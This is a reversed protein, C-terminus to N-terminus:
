GEMQDVMDSKEQKASKLSKPKRPVPPKRASGSKRRGGYTGDKSDDKAADDVESLDESDGQGIFLSDEEKVKEAKKEKKVVEAGDGKKQLELGEGMTKELFGMAIEDDTMYPNPGEGIYRVPLGSNFLKKIRESSMQVQPVPIPEGARRRRKKGASKNRPPGNPDYALGAQVAEESIKSQPLNGKALEAAYWVEKKKVPTSKAPTSKAPTSKPPSSKPSVPPQTPKNAKKASTLKRPFSRKIPSPKGRAQRKSPRPTLEGDYFTKTPSSKAPSSLALECPEDYTIGLANTQPPEPYHYTPLSTTEQYTMHSSKERDENHEAQSPLSPRPGVNEQQGQQTQQLNQQTQELYATLRPGYKNLIRRLRLDNDKAEHELQAKKVHYGQIVSRVTEPILQPDLFSPSILNSPPEPGDAPPVIFSRTPYRHGKEGPSVVVAPGDPRSRGNSHPLDLVPHKKPRLFRTRDEQQRQHSVQLEKQRRHHEYVKIREELILKHLTVQNQWEHNRADSAARFEAGKLDKFEAISDTLSQRSVDCAQKHLQRAKKPDIPDDGAKWGAPSMLDGLHGIGPIRHTIGIIDAREQYLDSKWEGDDSASQLSIVTATSRSPDWEKSANIPDHNSLGATANQIEGQTLPATKFGETHASSKSGLLAGSSSKNVAAKEGADLVTDVSPLSPSPRPELVEHATQESEAM